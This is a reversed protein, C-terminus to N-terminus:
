PTVVKAGHFAHFSQEVQWRDFAGLDRARSSVIAYPSGDHATWEIVHLHPDRSVVSSGKGHVIACIGINALMTPAVLLTLYSGASITMAVLFLATLKSRVVSIGENLGASDRSHLLTSCRAVFTGEDYLPCLLPIAAAKEKQLTKAVTYLSEVYALEGGIRSAAAQDCVLERTNNLHRRFLRACPHAYIPLLLLQYFVNKAFDHRRVHALEHALVALRMTRGLEFFWPPLLLVSRRLGFTAPSQSTQVCRVQWICHPPCGLERLEDNIQNGPIRVSRLVADWTRLANFILHGLGVAVGIVYLVSLGVSVNRLSLIHNQQPFSMQHPLGTIIVISDASRLLPVFCSALPVLLTLISATVWVVHRTSSSTSPTRRHVALSVAYIVFVQWTANLFYFPIRGM